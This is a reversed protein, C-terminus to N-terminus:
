GLAHEEEFAETGGHTTDNAGSNEVHVMESVAEKETEARDSPEDTPQVNAGHLARRFHWLRSEEPFEERARLYSPRVYILCNFFGSLPLFIAQLVLLPFLRDEDVADYSQSELIKLCVSSSYTVLFCVVYLMAQVAVAQIRRDQPDQREKRSSPGFSVTSAATLSSRVYAQSQRITTRVHKYIIVNNIIISVLALFIPIGGFVYAIYISLCRAEGQDSGCGDPYDNVYCGHGIETEHYVGLVAGVFATILPYGISLLHMWKEYKKAMVREQVGMRVVMLFYFSLMAYYWVNAFSFQQFFGIATCTADTGIAWIRQSTDKPFLFAQWPIVLSSILDSCSLGLLIRRYTTKKDSKIVMWIINASGWISLAASFVPLLSLIKDQTESLSSIETDVAQSHDAM